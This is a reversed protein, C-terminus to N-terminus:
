NIPYIHWPLILQHGEHTQFCFSASVSICCSERGQVRKIECNKGYFSRTVTYKGEICLVVANIRLWYTNRSEQYKDWYDEGALHFTECWNKWIFAFVVLFSAHPIEWSVEEEEEEVTTESESVLERAHGFLEDDISLGFNSCTWCWFWLCSSSTWSTLVGWRAKSRLRAPVLSKFGSSLRRSQRCLLMPTEDCFRGELVLVLVSAM